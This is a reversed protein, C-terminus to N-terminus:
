WACSSGCTMEPAKGSAAPPTGPTRTLEGLREVPPWPSYGFITAKAKGEARLSVVPETRLRGAVSRLMGEFAEVEIRDASMAARTIPDALLEGITLEGCFGSKPSSLDNHTAHM